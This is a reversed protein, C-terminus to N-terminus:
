VNKWFLSCRNSINSVELEEDERVCWTRAVYQLKFVIKSKFTLDSQHFLINLSINEKDRKYM